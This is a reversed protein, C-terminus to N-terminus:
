KRGSTFNVSSSPPSPNYWVPLASMWICAPFMRSIWVFEMVDGRRSTVPRVDTLYNKMYLHRSAPWLLRTRLRAVPEETQTIVRGFWRGNLSPTSGSITYAYDLIDGRRVDDVMLVASQLGTFLNQELDTERQIVHVKDRAFRDM